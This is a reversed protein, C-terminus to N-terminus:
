ESQLRKSFVEAGEPHRRFLASLFGSSPYQLCLSCCTGLGRPNSHNLAAQCSTRM